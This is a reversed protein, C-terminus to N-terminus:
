MSTSGVEGGTLEGASIDAVLKLGTLHQPRPPAAHVGPHSSPTCPAHRELADMSRSRRCAAYGVQAALGPKRRNKRIDDVAVPTGVVASLGAAMRLIQGGGELMGGNIHVFPKAM